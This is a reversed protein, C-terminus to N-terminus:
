KSSIWNIRLIVEEDGGCDGTGEVVYGGIIVIMMIMTIM